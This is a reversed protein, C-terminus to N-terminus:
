ELNGFSCEGSDAPVRSEAAPNLYAYIGGWINLQLTGSRVIDMFDVSTPVLDDVEEARTSNKETSWCGFERM